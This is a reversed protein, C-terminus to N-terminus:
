QDLGACVRKARRYTNMRARGLVVNYIYIIIIYECYNTNLQQAEFQNSARFGRLM